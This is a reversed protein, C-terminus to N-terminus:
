SVNRLWGVSSHAVLRSSHKCKHVSLWLSATYYTTVYRNVSPYCEIIELLETIGISIEVVYADRLLKVELLGFANPVSSFIYLKPVDICM